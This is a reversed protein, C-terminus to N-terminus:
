LYFEKLSLLRISRISESDSSHPRDAINKLIRSLDSLKGVVVVQIKKSKNDTGIIFKDIKKDYPRGSSADLVYSQYLVDVVKSENQKKMLKDNLDTIETIETLETIENQETILPSQYHTLSTHIEHLKNSQSVILGLEEAVERAVCEINSEGILCSGTVALQTDMMIDAHWYVPCAVYYKDIMNNVKLFDYCQKLGVPAFSSIMISTGKNIKTIFDSGFHYIYSPQLTRHYIPEWHNSNDPIKIKKKCCPICFM